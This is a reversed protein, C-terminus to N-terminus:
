GIFIGCTHRNKRKDRDKRTNCARAELTSPIEAKDLDIIEHEPVWETLNDDGSWVLKYELATGIIYLM